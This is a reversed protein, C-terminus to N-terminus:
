FNIYPVWKWLLAISLYFVLESVQQIAGLCDGTYGGIWKYFFRYLLWTALLMPLVAFWCNWTFLLLLVLAATACAIAFALPKLPASALPKTKSGTNDTAYQGFQIAIVPMLRSLCHGAILTSIILGFRGWFTNEHLNCTTFDQPLLMLAMFRAALMGTLGVTGYTGLRSDKMITLIQEKTWGGGFGDCVDAFGDEHFAGTAWITGLMGLLTALGSQQWIAYAALWFGAQICGILGGALPFYKPTQPLMDPHHPFNKGVPLRTLFMITSRFVNWEFKLM